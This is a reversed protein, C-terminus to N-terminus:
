APERAPAEFVTLRTSGYRRSTRVPLPLDPTARAQSEVVVIGDPEVISGISPAINALASELM